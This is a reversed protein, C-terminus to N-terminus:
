PTVDIIQLQESEEIEKPPPNNIAYACDNAQKIYHNAAVKLAEPDDKSVSSLRQSWFNYAASPVSTCAYFPTPKLSIDGYLHQIDEGLIILHRSMARVEPTTYGLNKYMAIVADSAILTQQVENLMKKTQELQMQYTEVAKANSVMKAVSCSSTVLLLLAIYRM